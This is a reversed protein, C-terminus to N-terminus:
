DSNAKIESIANTIADVAARIHNQTNYRGISIRVACRAQDRTMGMALFVHSPAATGSSCASGISMCITPTRTILLDAPVGPFMISLTGPLRHGNSAVIECEPINKRIGEEMYQRLSAIREAEEPLYGKLLRCAEGTGVIGPINLTGPRLGHEQGGGFMIPSLAMDNMYNKIVIFGIGKPGYAKHTSFSMFDARIDDISVSLKGLMQAADCHFLAGSEHAIDAITDVPQLTGIENNAGQVSVLLTDEDILLRAADLDVVGNKTVPLPKIQYGRAALASCPGLVSKHEIESVIISRRKNDAHALGLIVLNNAETACSTFYISSANCGISDAIYERATAVAKAAQRGLLHPSSSNGHLGEFYPLMAEIVKPDCQTTANNDLYIVNNFPKM